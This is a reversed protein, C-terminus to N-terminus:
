GRAQTRVSMVCIECLEEVVEGFPAVQADEEAGGEGPEEEVDGEVAYVEVLVDDELLYAEVAVGARGPGPEELYGDPVKDDSSKPEYGPIIRRHQRDLPQTPLPYLRLPKQHRGEKERYKRPLKLTQTRHPKDNTKRKQLHTETRERREERGGEKRKERRRGRRGEGDGRDGGGEEVSASALSEHCNKKM